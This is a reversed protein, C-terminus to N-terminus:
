YKSIIKSIEELVENITIRDSYESMWCKKILEGVLEPTMNIDIMPRLKDEVVYKYVEKLSTNFPTKENFIEWFIVGLSYIDASFLISYLEEEIELLIKLKNGTKKNSKHNKNVNEYIEKCSIFSDKSNIEYNDEKVDKTDKKNESNISIKGVQSEQLSTLIIMDKLNINNDNKDFLNYNILLSKEVSKLYYTGVGKNLQLIEPSSYSNKNKYSIFISAMEKLNSFGYDTIKPNLKKDLLINKSSLHLHPIKYDHLYKLGKAIKQCLLLKQKIKFDKKINIFDQFYIIENSNKLNEESESIKNLFTSLNVQYYAYLICIRSSEICIGVVKCLNQHNINRKIIFKCLKM